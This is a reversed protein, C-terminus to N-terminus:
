EAGQEANTASSLVIVPLMSNTAKVKSLFEVGALGPRVWDTILLDFSCSLLTKLFTGGDAFEIVQIEPLRHRILVRVGARVEAVDDLLAVARGRPKQFEEDCTVPM